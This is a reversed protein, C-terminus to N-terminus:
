YKSYIAWLNQGVAPAVALTISAGSITYDKGGGQTLILGDLSLSVTSGAPPTNALTFSTNSGDVTGSPTEQVYQVAVPLQSFTNSAGSMTKNTVTQTGTLTVLNSPNYSWVVFTLSDTGITVVTATQLWSTQTNVTGNIVPILDGADVDSATDYDLARTLVPSILSGGTVTLSYVGNQFGSTQDKLLIRSNIPPTVGDLTFAGTATVTFTAGIGAIGNSYTGVINSGITAAYVGQLPNLGSAVTDVYNKTSADQPNVPDAQNIISGGSVTKNTLTDTSARGVLTDTASPPTWTKTRDSSIFTDAPQQRLAGSLAQLPYFSLAVALSAGVLYHNKIRM